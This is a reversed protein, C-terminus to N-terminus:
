ATAPPVLEFNLRGMIMILDVFHRRPNGNAIM